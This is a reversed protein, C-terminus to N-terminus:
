EMEKNELFNLIDDSNQAQQYFDTVLSVDSFSIALNQLQDMQQDGSLALGVIFLVENNDWILPQALKVFIMGNNQIYKFGERESHPIALYNGIAVSITQDRKHMSKIYKKEIFNKELMKEGVWQIAEKKNKFTQNLYIDEKRLLM